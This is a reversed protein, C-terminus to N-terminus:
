SVCSPRRRSLDLGSFSAALRTKISESWESQIAHKRSLSEKMVSTFKVTIGTYILSFTKFM